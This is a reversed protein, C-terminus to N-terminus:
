QEQAKKMMAPRDDVKPRNITQPQSSTSSNNNIQIQANVDNQRQMEKKVDINEQSSNNLQQGTSIESKFQEAMKIRKAASATDAYGVTSNVTDIKNYEEESINREKAKIKFFAPIIKAAIEPENALDPNQVLDVGIMKGVREYMYKGTIQIFGRGRYKFGDGPVTNGMRGDYVKNFYAEPGAAVIDKADQLTQFRVRNKGNKPQGGPVGQPGFMSFIKEPSPVGESRPNFNSEASVNAMINPIAAGAFGASLLAAFVLAKGGSFKPPPIIPKTVTPRATPEVKPTPAPEVKPKPEPKPAPKPEPKPAPKPAPKPEPKPEPKPTPEVKPKEAKPREVKPKPKKVKGTLAKIIERNRLEEELAKTELFNLDLQSQIKKYKQTKVLLDYIRGLIDVSVINTQEPTGLKNASVSSFQNTLQSAKKTAESSMKKKPM